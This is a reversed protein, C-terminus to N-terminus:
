ILGVKSSLRIPMAFYLVKKKKIKLIYILLIEKGLTLREKRMNLNQFMKSRNVSIRFNRKQKIASLFWYQQLILYDKASKQFHKM